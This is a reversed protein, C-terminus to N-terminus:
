HQVIFIKLNEDLVIQALFLQKGTIIYSIFINTDFVYRKIRM